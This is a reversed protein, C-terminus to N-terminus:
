DIEIRAKALRDRSDCGGKLIAALNDQGEFENELFWDSKVGNSELQVSFTPPLAKTQNMQIQEIGM